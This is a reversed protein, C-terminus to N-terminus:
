QAADEKKAPASAAKARTDGAGKGAGKGAGAKASVRGRGAGRKDTTKTMRRNYAAVHVGRTRPGNVPDGGCQVM